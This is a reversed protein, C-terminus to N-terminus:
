LQSLAKHVLNALRRVVWPLEAEGIVAIKAKIAIDVGDNGGLVVDVNVDPQWIAAHTKVVTAKTQIEIGKQVQDDKTAYSFPHGLDVPQMADVAEEGDDAEKSTILLNVFTNYSPKYTSLGAWRHVDVM